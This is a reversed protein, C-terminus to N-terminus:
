ISIKVRNATLAVGVKNTGSGAVIGAAGAFVNTGPTLALSTGKNEIICDQDVALMTGAKRAFRAVGVPITSATALIALGQANISVVSGEPIDVATVLNVISGDLHSSAIFRYKVENYAVNLM